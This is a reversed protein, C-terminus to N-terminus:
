IVIRTKQRIMIMMKEVRIMASELIYVDIVFEAMSALVEQEENPEEYTERVFQIFDNTGERLLDLQAWEQELGGSCQDMLKHELSIEEKLISNAIVIRNIENTGEFIRNIRADRYMTEIEYERMYGYGGHMQMSEDVIEDLAETAFVKNVSCDIAFAKLIEAFETDNKECYFAGKAMEGATRYVTSEIAFIKVAMDAIKQKILTFDSLPRKFQKRSTVHRVALNMAKKSAGLSSASIKHRGINLINFAIKHGKGIDGLVNEVPVHVDKLFVSATSSGLLGMKQEEQGIAIGETNRDVIFATFQDGNIKTYVIFFDAFNANGIWQKEGNIIYYRQDSSLVAHTKIGLADTGAEPETLAYAGIKNGAIVDPLYANKQQKSGYYLIPLSGIGTQGGFPVPFSRSWGMQEMIIVSHIKDFNGGGFQKPLDVGLLGREGAKKLLQKLPEFNQKEVEPMVPIVDETVFAEATKAVKKHEATFDEVTFIDDFGFHENLSDSGKYKELNQM